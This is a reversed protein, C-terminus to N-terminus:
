NANCNIRKHGPKGCKFCLYRGSKDRWIEKKIGVYYCDDTLHGWIGCKICKNRFRKRKRSNVQYLAPEVSECAVLANDSNCDDERYSVVVPISSPTEPQPTSEVDVIKVRRSIEIQISTPDRSEEFKVRKARLLSSIGSM